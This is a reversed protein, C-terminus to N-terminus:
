FIAVEINSGGTTNGSAIAFTLNGNHGSDLDSALVRIIASGVLTSESINRQYISPNFVPANDNVDLVSVAVQPIYLSDCCYLLVVLM